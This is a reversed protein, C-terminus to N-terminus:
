PSPWLFTGTQTILYITLLQKLLQILWTGRSLFPKASALEEPERRFKKIKNGKRVPRPSPCHVDSSRAM